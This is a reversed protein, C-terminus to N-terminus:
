MLSGGLNRRYFGNKIVPKRGFSPLSDDRPPPVTLCRWGVSQSVTLPQAQRDQLKKERRAKLYAIRGKGDKSVGESLLSFEPPRGVTKKAEEEELYRRVIDDEKEQLGKMHKAKWEDRIRAEKLISNKWCNASVVNMKMGMSVTM